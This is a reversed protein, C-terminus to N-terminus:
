PGLTHRCPRPLRLCSTISHHWCMSRRDAAASAFALLQVPRVGSGICSKARSGDTERREHPHGPM